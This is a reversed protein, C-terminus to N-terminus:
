YFRYYIVAEDAVVKRVMLVYAIVARWFKRDKARKSYLGNEMRDDM